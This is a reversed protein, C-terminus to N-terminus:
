EKRKGLTFEHRPTEAEESLQWNEEFVREENLLVTAVNPKIYTVTRIATNKNVHIAEHFFFVKKLELLDREQFEVEALLLNAGQYHMKIRKLRDLAEPLSLPVFVFNKVRGLFNGTHVRQEKDDKLVWAFKYAM